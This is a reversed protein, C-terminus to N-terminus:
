LFVSLASLRGLAARVTCDRSWGRPRERINGAPEAPESEPESESESEPESEAPEPVPKVHLMPMINDTVTHILKHQHTIPKYTRTDAM